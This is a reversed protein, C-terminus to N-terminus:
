LHLIVNVFARWWALDQAFHFRDVGLIRSLIWNLVKDEWRRGRIRLLREREPNGALVNRTIGTWNGESEKVEDVLYYYYYYYYYYYRWLSAIVRPRAHAEESLHDARRMAPRGSGEACNRAKGSGGV